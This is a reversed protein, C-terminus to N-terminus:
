QVTLTLMSSLAMDGYLIAFRRGVPDRGLSLTETLPIDPSPAPWGPCGTVAPAEVRPEITSCTPLPVDDNSVGSVDTHVDRLGAARELLVTVM